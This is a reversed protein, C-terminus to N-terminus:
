EDETEATKTAPKVKEYIDSNEVDFEEAEDNTLDRAPVGPIFRGAGTYKWM